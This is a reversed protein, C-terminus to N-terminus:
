APSAAHIRDLFAGLTRNFEAPTEITPSHGAGEIVALESGSIAAYIARSPQLFPEDNEGCVILTPAKVSQLRELLSERSRMALTGGVYAERSTMMFQERWLAVFAPVEAAKPNAKLHLEFVAELGDDRATQLLRENWSEFGGIPAAATDVLVLGSVLEPHDLVIHQSIMGGMSHGVLYCEDVGIERIAEYAIDAMNRLAYFSTDEPKDSAGHGPLDISICRFRDKLARVNLAWNRTNGTFGHLFVVPLGEGVDRYNIKLGDVTVEPM